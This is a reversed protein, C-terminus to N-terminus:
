LDNFLQKTIGRALDISNVMQKNLLDAIEESRLINIWEEISSIRELLSKTKKLENTVAEVEIWLSEDHIQRYKEIDVENNRIIQDLVDILSQLKTRM